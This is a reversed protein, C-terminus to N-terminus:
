SSSWSAASSSSADAREIARRIAPAGGSGLDAARYLKSEQALRRGLEPGHPDATRIWAYPDARLGTPRRPYSPLAPLLPPPPAAGSAVVAAARGQAREEASEGLCVIAVLGARHAAAAKAAIVTDSEGHGGRRESHGVIVHSCGLDALLPAAVDWTFAGKDEWHCNQAGLGIKM